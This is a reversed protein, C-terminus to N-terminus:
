GADDFGRHPVFDSRRLDLSVLAGGAFLADNVEM